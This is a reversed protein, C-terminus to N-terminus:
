RMAVVTIWPRTKHHYSKVSSFGARVLAAEIQPVTYCRMGDIIKEYKRSEADTGDSESVICFVGGERLVRRVEAFCAELGPWFYITEFATALDFSGDRFPLAKVNAEQVRCRGRRILSRNYARTKEVSLPSYDVATLAADKYRHLLQAANRGGGCGIDIMTKPAMRPFQDMGWDAMQAHGRNMGRIMMAGLIGEPKRTNNVFKRFLGM